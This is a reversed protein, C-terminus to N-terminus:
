APDGKFERQPPRRPSRQTTEQTPTESSSTRSRIVFKRLRKLAKREQRLADLEAEIAEIGDSKTLRVLLDSSVKGSTPAAQAEARNMRAKRYSAYLAKLKKNPADAMVFEWDLFWIYLSLAM